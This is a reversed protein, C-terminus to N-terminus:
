YFHIKLFNESSISILPDSRKLIKDGIMIKKQKILQIIESFEVVKWRKKIANLLNRKFFDKETIIKKKLCQTQGIIGLKRLKSNLIKTCLKILFNEKKVVSIQRFEKILKVLLKIITNKKTESVKM